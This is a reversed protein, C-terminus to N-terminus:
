GTANPVSTSIPSTTPLEKHHDTSGDDSTSDFILPGRRIARQSILSAPLKSVVKTFGPHTNYAAPVTTSTM